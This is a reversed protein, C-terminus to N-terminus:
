FVFFFGPRILLASTDLEVIISGFNSGSNSGWTITSNTFGSDRTVVEQGLTDSTFGVDLRETWNTPNTMTAPNTGNAVAGITMNATLANSGFAPAPAAGSVGDSQGASQLVASAGVRTMGSVVAVIVSGSTNSGTTCTITTSTTNALLSNRVFASLRYNVSSIAWSQTRIRTYTGGNDDTMTPADQTNGAAACFVVFLDGVAPVLAVTRNGTGSSSGGAASTRYAAAHAASCWALALVCISIFYAKKSM